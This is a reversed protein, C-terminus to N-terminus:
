REPKFLDNWRQLPDIDPGKRTFPSGEATGGHHDVVFEFGECRNSGNPDRIVPVGPKLCWVKGRPIFHVCNACCHLAAGCTCLNNYGPPATDKYISGCQHCKRQSM